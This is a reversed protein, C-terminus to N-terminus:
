PGILYGAAGAALALGMAAFVQLGATRGAITVVLGAKLITNVAVATLIAGAALTEAITQNAAAEALSLTIADTDALGSLAALSILGAGGLLDQAVHSLVMILALLAGFEIATRLDLPNRAAFSEEALTDGSTRRTKRILWWAAALGAGTTPVLAVALRDTLAPALTIAILFIRPFMVM